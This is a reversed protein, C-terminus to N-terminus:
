LQLRKAKTATSPLHAALTEFCCGANYTEYIYKERTNTREGFKNGFIEVGVDGVGM